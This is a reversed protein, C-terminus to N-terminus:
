THFNYVNQMFYGSGFYKHDGFRAPHNYVIVKEKWFTIM